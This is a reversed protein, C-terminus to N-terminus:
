GTAAKEKKREKKRKRKRKESPKILPSSNTSANRRTNLKIARNACHDDDGTTTHLTPKTQSHEIQNEDCDKSHKRKNKITNIM